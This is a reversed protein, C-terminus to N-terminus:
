REKTSQRPWQPLTGLVAGIGASALLGLSFSFPPAAVWAPLGAAAAAYGAVWCMAGVPIGFSVIGLLAFGIARPLKDMRGIIGGAPKIGAGFAAVTADGGREWAGGPFARGRPEAERFRIAVNVRPAPPLAELVTREWASGPFSPRRLSYQHDGAAAPGGKARM